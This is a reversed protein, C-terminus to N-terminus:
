LIKGDRDLIQITSVNPHLVANSPLTVFPNFRLELTFNEVDLEFLSDDVITVNFSQQRHTNNFTLFVDLTAASIERYDSGGALSYLVDFQLYM